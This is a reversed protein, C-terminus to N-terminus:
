EDHMHKIYYDEEEQEEQERLMYDYDIEEETFEEFDPDPRDYDTVEYFGHASNGPRHGNHNNYINHYDDYKCVCVFGGVVILALIIWFM